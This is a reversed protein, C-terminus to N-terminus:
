LTAQVIQNLQHTFNLHQISNRIEKARVPTKPHDVAVKLAEAMADPDFLNSIVCGNQQTLIESGGNSQSSVVFLGMALAEVTVNAFPDYLSPVVLSDAVQYFKRIDSRVGFFTVKNHLGLSKALEQFYGMNKEKGVVSLQFNNWRLRALGKLLFHLGKRRYDNGIFLFQYASPDLGLEKTISIQNEEWCSFDNKMEDWEVGNHVVQIKSHDFSYHEAIENRVLNSNAFLIKLNPDEFISKEFNLITWHLPNIKFSVKKLFSEEKSRHNLYAAHVGNSARYHTQVRNRDMGFVVDASNERLWKKCQQDFYHIHLFSIKPGNGFNVIQAKTNIAETRKKIKNTTLITVQCDKDAFAQALRLTYKEAGGLYDLNSKLIVIKQM